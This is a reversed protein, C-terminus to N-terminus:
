QRPPRAPPAAAGRALEAWRGPPVTAVYRGRGQGDPKFVIAVGEPSPWIGTAEQLNGTHGALVTNTGAAPPTGLLRTLAAGRRQTTAADATVTHELEADVTARGFALRATDIARCYPSALVTGVPIRMQAFLRGIDAMQRRGEASLQRQKTCDALDIRDADRTALDTAGHRFYIVHGGGRLANVLEAGDIVNPPSNSTDQPGAASAAAAFCAITCAALAGRWGPLRHM